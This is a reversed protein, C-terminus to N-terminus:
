SITNEVDVTLTETDTKVWNVGVFNFLVGTDVTGTGDIFTGFERATGDWDLASFFFSIFAVCNGAGGFTQSSPTKRFFEAGLTTDTPQPATTDTGVAGHTIIGTYTTDNALRQAIVSRGVNAVLNKEKYIRKVEGSKADRVTATINYKVFSNGKLGQSKHDTEIINPKTNM